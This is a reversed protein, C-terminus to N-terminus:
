RYDSEEVNFIVRDWFNFVALKDTLRSREQPHRNRFRSWGDMSYTQPALPHQMQDYSIM